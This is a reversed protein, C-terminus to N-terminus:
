ERIRSREIERGQNVQSRILLALSDEADKRADDDNAARAAEILKLLSIAKDTFLSM